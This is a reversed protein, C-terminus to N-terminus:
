RYKPDSFKYVHEIVEARNMGEWESRPILKSFARSLLSKNYGRGKTAYHFCILDSVGYGNADQRKMRESKLDFEIQNM